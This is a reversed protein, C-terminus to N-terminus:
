AAVYITYGYRSFSSKGLVMHLIAASLAVPLVILGIGCLRYIKLAKVNQSEVEEARKINSRYFNLVGGRMVALLLYYAALSGYWVSRNIIGMVGNFVVYAASLTFSGVAFVATRFGYQNLLKNTFRRKKLSSIIGSKIKPATVVIAYVSYGLSLAALAYALYNVASDTKLMCLVSAGVACLTFALWVLVFWVPPRKLFSLFKKM